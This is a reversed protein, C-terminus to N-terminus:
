SFLDDDVRKRKRHNTVMSAAQLQFSSELLWSNLKVGAAQAEKYIRRELMDLKQLITPDAESNNALDMILRFRTTFTHLLIDHVEGSRDFHKINFGLEYFYLSFKHLDVATADAKLIERYAERYSKPLEPAVIPQRGTACDLTLWLPLELQTGSKLDKDETSPNLVGMRPVNQLFKCPVREQTALIDELSYYNPTYSLQLSM